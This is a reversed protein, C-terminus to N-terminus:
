CVARALKIRVEPNIVSSQKPQPPGYANQGRTAERLNPKFSPHFELVM